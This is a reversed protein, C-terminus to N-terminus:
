SSPRWPPAIGRGAGYGRYLRMQEGRVTVDVFPTRLFRTRGGRGGARVYQLGIAVRRRLQEEEDALSQRLEHEDDALLVDEDIEDLFYADDLSLSYLDSAICAVRDGGLRSRLWLRAATEDAMVVSAVDDEGDVMSALLSAVAQNSRAVTMEDVEGAEMSDQGDSQVQPERAM